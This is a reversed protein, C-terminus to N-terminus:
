IAYVWMRLLLITHGLVKYLFTGPCHRCQSSPHRVSRSGSSEERSGQVDQLDVDQFFIVAYGNEARSNLRYPFTLHLRWMNCGLKRVLRFVGCGCRGESSWIYLSITVGFPVYAMLWYSSAFPGDRNISLSSGAWRGNGLCLTRSDVVDYGARSIYLCM